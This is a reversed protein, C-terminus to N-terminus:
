RWRKKEPGTSVVLPTSLSRWPRSNKKLVFLDPLKCYASAEPKQKKLQIHYTYNKSTDTKKAPHIEFIFIFPEINSNVISKLWCCTSGFQPFLVFETDAEISTNNNTEQCSIVVESELCCFNAPQSIGRQHGSSALCGVILKM